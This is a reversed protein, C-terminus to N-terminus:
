ETAEGAVPGAALVTGIRRLGEQLVAPERAFSLRCGGGAGVTEGPMLLVGTALVRRCFSLSTEDGTLWLWAFPTGSPPVLSLRDTRTACWDRLVTLGDETLRRYSDLYDGARSLVDAALTESLVSNAITTLHKRRTCAATIDPAAYLWGVRLGPLGYVKSLSSVSIVRDDHCALSTDLEVAYEEDVLLYGDTRAVIDRLVALEGAGLVQGTPNCPSNVVIIRLRDTAVAAVAAVDIGFDADLDLVDVRAGLAAPADWSQQWGPRFTIVQDGPRLLTSYVLFLAEQAGHTVLVSDTSGAYRGAILERLRACGQDVGYNLELDDPLRLQTLTGCQVHSDGLDIDFRGLSDEFVWQRMPYDATDTSRSDVTTM